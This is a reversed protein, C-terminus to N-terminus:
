PTPKPGDTRHEPWAPSGFTVPEWAPEWADREETRVSAMASRAFTAADMSLAAKPLLDRWLDRAAEWNGPEGFDYGAEVKPDRSRVKPYLDVVDVTLRGEALDDVYRKLVSVAEEGPPGNREGLHQATRVAMGGDQVVPLMEVTSLRTRTGDPGIRRVSLIRSENSECRHVYGGVCHSLGMSGDPNPGRRGEDVVSRADRLVVVEHDGYDADPLGPAWSAGAASGRSMDTLRAGIGHQVVHWRESGELVRTVSRGSALIADAAVGATRDHGDLDDGCMVLAPVLVQRRLAEGVHQANRLAERLRVGGCADELRGAFDVWGPGRNVM